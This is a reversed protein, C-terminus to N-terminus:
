VFGRPLYDVPPVEDPEEEIDALYDNPNLKDPISEITIKIKESTFNFATFAVGVARVPLQFSGTPDIITKLILAM